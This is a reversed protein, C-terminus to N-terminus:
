PVDTRLIWLKLPGSGLIATEKSMATNLRRQSRLECSEPSSQVELLGCMGERWVDQNLIGTFFSNHGSISGQTSSLHPSGLAFSSVPRAQSASSSPGSIQLSSPFANGPCPGAYAFVWLTPTLCLRHSCHLYILSVFGGPGVELQCTQVKDEACDSTVLLTQTPSLCSRIQSRASSNPIPPTFAM